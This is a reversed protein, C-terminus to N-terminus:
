CFICDYRQAQEFYNKHVRNPTSPNQSLLVDFSNPMIAYNVNATPDIDMCHDSMLRIQIVVPSCM